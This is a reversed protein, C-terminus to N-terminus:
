KPNSSKQKCNSCKQKCLSLTEVLRRLSSYASFSLCFCFFSWGYTFVSGGKNRLALLLRALVYYKPRLLHKPLLAVVFHSRPSVEGKEVRTRESECKRAPKKESDMLVM